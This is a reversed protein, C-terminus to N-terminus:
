QYLKRRQAAATELLARLATEDNAALASGLANLQQQIRQLMQGTADQNTLLIDMMMSVDSAAIRSTDRFGSAAVQWLIDDEDGITKAALVLGASLLYPAHSIAATLKDHRDPELLLPKAGLSLALQRVIELAAKPTRSLPSLVWTAGEYLTTEAASLGAIEKGCMPHSGVPYVRPPLRNMAATIARKTSGMDTIVAGSKYFPAFDNLQRLLVRVPTGFIVIDADRLAEAPATFARAVVGLREAERAAEERRLLAVIRRCTKDRQLRMALSGGMLGLGVLTIQANKLTFDLETTFICRRVFSSPPLCFSSSFGEAKM